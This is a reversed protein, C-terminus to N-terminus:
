GELSGSQSQYFRKGHRSRKFISRSIRFDFVPKMQIGKDEVTLKVAMSRNRFSRFVFAKKFDTLSFIFFNM